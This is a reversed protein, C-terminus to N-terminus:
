HWLAVCVFIWAERWAGGKEEPGRLIQGSLWIASQEAWGYVSVIFEVLGRFQNVHSLFVPLPGESLRHDIGGAHFSLGLPWFLPFFLVCLSTQRGFNEFLTTDYFVHLWHCRKLTKISQYKVRKQTAWLNEAMEWHSLMFCHRSFLCICKFNLLDVKKYSLKSAM